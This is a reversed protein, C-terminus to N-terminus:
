LFFDQTRRPPLVRRILESIEKVKIPKYTWYISGEEQPIGGGLVSSDGGEMYGSLIIFKVYPNIEKLRKYLEVGNMGPMLFDSIVVDIKDKNERYM